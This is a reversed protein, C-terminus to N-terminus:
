VPAGVGMRDRVRTMTREAIARARDAGERLTEQLAPEDPRLEAYRDRVPALYAAVEEGVAQKFQGYGSGDFEAEIAEPEVGRVVSLVEILNSIGPKGPGRVVETGSDTVASKVKKVVAKEDDLVFITGPETGGTTSMKQEPAQLDMIRAGLEPIRHRPVVLTEGFRENFRQAIDRTLELHQRQDDGVPV